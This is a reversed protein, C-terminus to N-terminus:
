RERPRFPLVTGREPEGRQWLVPVERPAPPEFQAREAEAAAAELEAELEWSYKRPPPLPDARRLWWAALVGAVAGGLHAQWSVGPERPLVTMLMGGYFMFALMATAVAARDRRLLGLTFVLFGIVWPLIFLYGARAESDFPEKIWRPRRLRRKRHSDIATAM